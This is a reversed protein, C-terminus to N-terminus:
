KVAFSVVSCFREKGGDGFTAHLKGVTDPQQDLYVCLRPSLESLNLSNKEFGVKGFLADDVNSISPSIRGGREFFPVSLRITSSLPFPSFYQCYLLGCYGQPLSFQQSNRVCSFSPLAYCQNYKM